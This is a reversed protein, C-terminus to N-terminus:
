SFSAPLGQGGSSNQPFSLHSWPDCQQMTPQVVRVRSWLSGERHAHASGQPSASLSAAPSDSSLGSGELSKSGSLIWLVCTFAAQVRLFSFSLILTVVLANSLLLIGSLFHAQFGVPLQCLSLICHGKSKWYLSWTGWKLGIGRGGCGGAGPWRRQAFVAM